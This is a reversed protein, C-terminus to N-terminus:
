ARVLVGGMELHATMPFMDFAAMERLEWPGATLVELDRAFAPPDCSVYVMVERGMWPQEVLEDVVGKAGGRPPDLVVADFPGDVEEVAEGTGGRLDRERFEFGEIQKFTAMTNATQVAQEAVELGVLRDVARRIGFSINGTGCFLELVSSVEREGLQDAVWGVVDRNIAPNAQRFLGAPVRMSEVPSDALCESADVTPDGLVWEREETLVRVGRISSVDELENGWEAFSDPPTWQEDESSLVRISVVCETADATEILLDAEGVARLAPEIARRARNVAEVAVLCDDITVLEDSGREFFGIEFPPDDAEDEAGRDTHRRHFTAHTRYRRSSPAAFREVEPVEVGAVRDLAELAAEVKLDFQTQQDTHWFRCGGCEAAFPCAADVRSDHAEVVEVLEARAFSDRQQTVRLDVTEGPLVGGLMVVRGDDLHALGDGGQVIREITVRQVSSEM